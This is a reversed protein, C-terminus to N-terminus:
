KTYNYTVTILERACPRINSRLHRKFLAEDEIITDIEGSVTLSFRITKRDAIEPDHEINVNIAKLTSYSEEAIRVATELDRTLNKEESEIIVQPSVTTLITQKIKSLQQQKTPPAPTRGIIHTVFKKIGFFDPRFRTRHLSPEVRGQVLIYPSTTARDGFRVFFHESKKYLSLFVLFTQSQELNREDPSFPPPLELPDSERPAEVNEAASVIPWGTLDSPRWTTNFGSPLEQLDGLLVDSTSSTYDEIYSCENLDTM